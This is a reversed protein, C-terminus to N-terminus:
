SRQLHAFPSGYRLTPLDAAIYGWLPCDAARESAGTLPCLGDATRCRATCFEHASPAVGKASRPAFLGLGEVRAVVFGFVVAVILVGMLAYFAEM